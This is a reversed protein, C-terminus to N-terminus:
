DKLPIMIEPGGLETKIDYLEDFCEIFDPAGSAGDAAMLGAEPLSKGFITFYTDVLMSSPGTHRFVAYRLSPIELMSFGQPLGTADSVQLGCFYEFGMDGDRIRLCVGYSCRGVPRLVEKKRPRFMHWQHSVGHLIEDMDLALIHRRRMGVLLFGDRREIRPPGLPVALVDCM